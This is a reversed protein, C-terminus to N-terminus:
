QSAAVRGRALEVAVRLLLARQVGALRPDAAPPMRRALDALQEMDFGRGAGLLVRQLAALAELMDEGHRRADRDRVAEQGAEQMALLSPMAVGTVGSAVAPAEEPVRFGTAAPRRPPTKVGGVQGLGTIVTM